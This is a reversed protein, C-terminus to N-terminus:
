AAAHNQIPNSIPVIKGGAPMARGASTGMGSGDQSKIARSSACGDYGFGDNRRSAKFWRPNMTEYWSTTGTEGPLGSQGINAAHQGPKLALGEGVISGVQIPGALHDIGASIEHNESIRRADRRCYPSVSAVASNFRKREFIPTRHQASPCRNGIVHFNGGSVIRHQSQFTRQSSVAATQLWARDSVVRGWRM